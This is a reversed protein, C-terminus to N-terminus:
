PRICDGVRSKKTLLLLMSGVRLGLYWFGDKEYLKINM